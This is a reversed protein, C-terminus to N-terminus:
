VEYLTSYKEQTVLTLFIIGKEDDTLSSKLITNLEKLEQDEHDDAHLSNPLIVKAIKRLSGVRLFDEFGHGLLCSLVRDVAVNTTSSVMLKLTNAPFGNIEEIMEFVQLLFLVVVSLLFSKGAGFVGHILTIDNIQEESLPRSLTEVSNREDNFKSFMIAIRELAQGQETNLAFSQITNQVLQDMENWSICSLNKVRFGAGYSSAAHHQQQRPSLIHPLVPVDVVRINQELNDLCSMETSANCIQIAHCRQGDSWNAAVYSSSPSLPSIELELSSNPGYFTSKAIFSTSPDFDLTNSVIWLDDKNYYGSAKKLPLVLMLSKKPLRQNLEHTNNKWNKGRKHYKNFFNFTKWTIKVSSYFQVGNSDLVTMLSRFDSIVPKKKSRIGASNNFSNKSNDKSCNNDSEDFWQFFNCKSGGVAACCAYFMRGKNRGEKKVSRLLAPGHKCSPKKELEVASVDVSDGHNTSVVLQSLDLGELTKRYRVAVSWLIINLHELITCKFVEKYHSPTTFHIPLVTKRVPVPNGKCQEESPFIYTSNSCHEAIRTTANSPIGCKKVPPLFASSPPQFKKNFRENVTKTTNNLQQKSTTITSNIINNFKQNKKSNHHNTAAELSETM